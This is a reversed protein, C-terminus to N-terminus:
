SKSQDNSKTNHKKRKRKGIMSIVLCNKVIRDVHTYIQSYSVNAMFIHIPKMFYSVVLAISQSPKKEKTSLLFQMKILDVSFSHFKTKFLLLQKLQRTIINGYCHLCCVDWDCQLSNNVFTTKCIPTTGHQQKIIVLRHHHCRIWYNVPELKVSMWIWKMHHRQVLWHHVVCIWDKFVTWHFLCLRM